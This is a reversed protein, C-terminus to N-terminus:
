MFKTEVRVWAGMGMIPIPVAPVTKKKKQIIINM